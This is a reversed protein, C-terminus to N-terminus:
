ANLMQDIIYFNCCCFWKIELSCKFNAQRKNIKMMLKPFHSKELQESVRKNLRPWLESCLLFNLLGVHSVIVFIVNEFFGVWILLFHWPFNQEDFKFLLRLGKTYCSKYAVPVITKKSTILFCWNDSCLLTKRFHSNQTKLHLSETSTLQRFRNPVNCHQARAYTCSM